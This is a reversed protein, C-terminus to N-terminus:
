KVRRYIVGDKYTKLEYVHELVEITQTCGDAEDILNKLNPVMPIRYFKPLPTPVDILQIKPMEDNQTEDLFLPM